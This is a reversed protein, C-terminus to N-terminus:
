RFESSAPSLSPTCGRALDVVIDRASQRAHVLGVAGGAYLPMAEIDGATDRVPSTFGYRPVVSGDPRHGAIEGEGPRNPSGPRGAKEWTVFTSNKLTRVPANPWGIDFLTSHATDDGNASLVRAQYHPHVNAEESALFRTGVWVGSAGLAFAAAVTRHDSIGGAALVPIPAVAGVVQPVLSMTGLEGRVYGGADRGQAVILDFGAQAARRGEEISGVVQIAVAGTRQIRQLWRSGDGWFFSIV